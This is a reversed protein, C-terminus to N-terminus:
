AEPVCPQPLNALQYATLTQGSEHLMTALEVGVYRFHWPEYFFGTIESADRPYSLTFGFHHANEGLWVGESTQYFYTHFEIDPVGVIDPLEPSGFDVATGLQHESHGPRASLIAAREPEKEQWKRHAIEQQAYSRYGSLLQPQLGATQMEAIMAALPEAAAQRLQNPYGKTVVFPLLDNLSVLDGPVYDRSLSYQQTVITLLDDQPVRQTCSAIPTPSPTITPTPLEITATPLLTPVATITPPLPVATQTPPRTPHPTNPTPHPATTAVLTATAEPLAAASPPTQPQCGGLLLLLLILIATKM